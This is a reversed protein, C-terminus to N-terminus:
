DDEGVLIRYTSESVNALLTEKDGEVAARRSRSASISGGNAQARPIEVVEIGYEPMMERLLDNHVQMQPSHREDGIFRCNIGLRKAIVEGFIRFGARTGERMTAPDVKVFYVAFVNRTGSFPGGPVIMVNPLHKTDEIAMAYREAFSLLGAEDETLLAFARDAHKSAYEILYRHGLTFPNGHLAIGGIRKGKEPQYGDFYLDLFLANVALDCALPSQDEKRSAKGTLAVDRVMRDFLENAYIQNVKHNCHAPMDLLWEEPVNNRDLIETLDISEVSAFPRNNVHFVVVDGPKMPTSTIHIMEQYPTEHCGCNVVKCSYGERNLREQLFSEITHKDEVYNGIMLCPGFFWITREAESPQGITVREGNVVNLYRSQVDKLRSYVNNAEVHLTLRGVEAAYNGVNLEEYFGQAADPTVYPKGTKKRWRRMSKWLRRRGETSEDETFLMNYIKVGSNALKEVLADFGLEAAKREFHRFTFAVDTRFPKGDLCEVILKTGLSQEEDVLLIPINEEQLDPIDGFDILECSVDFKKFEEIWRDVIKQRRIDGKPTRVIRLTKWKSLFPRAYRNGEWPRYYELYLLDDNRSCAGLLRNEEDTVPIEQINRRERFIERAKMFQKGKLATFNRNVPITGDGARIVDGFSVIGYLKDRVEVLVINFPKEALARRISERDLFEPKEDFAIIPLQDRKYYDM